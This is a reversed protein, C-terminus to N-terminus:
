QGGWTTGSRAFIDAEGTNGGLYAVVVITDGAIAVSIGFVDFTQPDSALLKAQESWATGNRVFVYAAGNETNPATDETYAGVVATDGSIAVSNGFSDVAAGDSAVLKASQGVARETASEDTMQGNKGRAAKVAQMLSEYQGNEKLQRVAEDGRLNPLADKT